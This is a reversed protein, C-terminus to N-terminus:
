GKKGCCHKYKRGSGCPCPDNRGVKPATHIFAEEKKGVPPIDPVAPPMILPARSVRQSEKHVEAYLREYDKVIDYVDEAGLPPPADPAFAARYDKWDGFVTPDILRADFMAKVRADDEHRLDMFANVIWAWLMPPNRRQQVTLVLKGDADLPPLRQSLAIIVREREEPHHLVIYSLMGCASGPPYDYEGQVDLMDILMPIALPGYYYPLAFEFWEFLMDNTEDRLLRAFILLAAPERFACLLQGAHIERYWRPDDRPWDEDLGGDLLALLGPTLTEQRALCTHILNLHPGRGAYELAALLEADTFADYDVPKIADQSVNGDRELADVYRKCEVLGQGTAQRVQKVAEVKLGQALLAKVVTELNPYEM